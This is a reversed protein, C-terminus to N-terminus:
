RMRGPRNLRVSGGPIREAIKMYYEDMITDVEPNLPNDDRTNGASVRTKFRDLASQQQRMQGYVKAQVYLRPLEEDVVPITLDDTDDNVDSPMSHLAEYTLLVDDTDYPAVDLMLNGGLLYWNFPRGAQTLYRVGPRPAREELFRDEPVEVFVARVFDSPLTYPGTGTGSLQAREPMYPFWLSYDRVADLWAIYLDNDNWRPTAGTDKLDIRLVAKMEGWNM